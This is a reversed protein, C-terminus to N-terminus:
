CDPLNDLNNRSTADAGTKIHKVGNVVYVRVDSEYGAESVYYSHTNSEIDSIVERKSRPSWAQGHSCVAIIDGDRDKRTRRIRRRAM